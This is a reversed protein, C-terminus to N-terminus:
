IHEKERDTSARESTLALSRRRMQSPTVGYKAKFLATFHNRSRYGAARYVDQVSMRKKSQFLGYATQLRLDNLLQPFSKGTARHFIQSFYQPTIGLQEAVSSASLMPDDQHERVYALAVTILHDSAETRLSRLNGIVRQHIRHVVEVLENMSEAMSLQDYIDVYRVQAGTEDWSGAVRLNSISFAVEAAVALIEPYAYEGLQVFLEETRAQFAESDGRLTDASLDEILSRIQGNRLADHKRDGVDAGSILRNSGLLLRYSSLNCAEMYASRLDQFRTARSSIGATVTLGYTRNIHDLMTLIGNRVLEESAPEERWFFCLVALQDDAMEVLQTRCIDRFVVDTDARLETFLTRIRSFTTGAVFKTAGDLRLVIVQVLPSEGPVALEAKMLEAAVVDESIPAATLLMRRIFSTEEVTLLQKGVRHLDDLHSIVRDAISQLQDQAGISGLTEAGADFVSSIPRYLARLLWLVFATAIGGVVLTGVGISVLIKNTPGMFVSAEGIYVGRYRGERWSATRVFTSEPGLPAVDGIAALMVDHDSGAPPLVTGILGPESAALVVGASDAVAITTGPASGIYLSVLDANVSVFAFRDAPADRYGFGHYYLTLINRVRGNAATQKRPVPALPQSEAAIASLAPYRDPEFSEQTSSAIIRSRTSVAVSHIYDHVVTVDDLYDHVYLTLRANWTEQSALARVSDDEYVEYAIRRSQSLYFFFQSGARELLADALETVDARASRQVSVLSVVSILAVSLFCLGLTSVLLTTSARKPAKM